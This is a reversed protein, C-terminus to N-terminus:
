GERRWIGGTSAARMAVSRCRRTLAFVYFTSVSCSRPKDNRPAYRRLLGARSAPYTQTAESRKCHRRLHKAGLQQSVRTVSREQGTTCYILRLRVDPVGSRLMAMSASRWDQSASPQCSRHPRPGAPLALCAAGASTGSGGSSGSVLRGTLVQLASLFLANAAFPGEVTTPGRAALLDLCTATMLAAYLSAM